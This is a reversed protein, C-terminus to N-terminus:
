AEFPEGRDLCRSLRHYLALLKPRTPPGPLARRLRESLTGERTLIELEPRFPASRPVLEEMLSAWVQRAAPPRRGHLGLARRLLRSRVMAGGAERTVESLVRALDATGPRLQTELSSLRGSTLARLVAVTLELIAFDMRPCEQVDIVRIEITNRDFRAIAGRANLWEHALIGKPDHPALDKYIRNLIRREYEARSRVPEPVVAGTVSPIRSCNTRYVELRRDLQPARRGEVFPSSAALGPLLPLIVRIATHLRSFEEDNRFPLNLHVAQLNAFGHGRCGFIRDLARYIERGEHPWIRTERRPNMLPHMGTPLLKAGQRALRQNVWRVERQFRDALGSLGPEPRACRLELVHSCLENSWAIPGHVVDADVSGGVKEILRDVGPVVRLTDRDVLMYELEVGFRRFLGFNRNV